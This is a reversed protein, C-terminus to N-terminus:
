GEIETGTVGGARTLPLQHSSPPGWCAAPPCDLGPVNPVTGPGGWIQPSLTSGLWALLGLLWGPKTGWEPPKPVAPSAPLCLPEPHGRQDPAVTGPLPPAQGPAAAPHWLLPQPM